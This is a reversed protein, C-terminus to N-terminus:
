GEAAEPMDFTMLNARTGGTPGAPAILVVFDPLATATHSGDPNAAGPEAAWDILHITM